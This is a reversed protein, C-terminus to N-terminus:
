LFKPLSGEEGANKLWEFLHGGVSRFCVIHLREENSLWFAAAIQGIHSRRIEGIELGQVSLDVPAGKAIVERVGEGSLTFMARADSVNVALFHTGSLSEELKAVVGEVLHYDCFVLLEDPSMWAVAGNKGEKIMRSNPVVLGVALKVAAALKEDALDGRLTIMGRLGADEIKVAGQFPASNIASVAESM